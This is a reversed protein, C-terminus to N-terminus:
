KSTNKKDGMENLQIDIKDLLKQRIDTWRNIKEQIPEKDETEKMANQLDKIKQDIEALREKRKEISEAEDAKDFIISEPSGSEEVSEPISIREKKPIFIAEGVQRQNMFGPSVIEIKAAHLEDLIMANLKSETSLITKVDQLLGFVKYVVSFDGLETIRVMPDTLGAKLAAEKLAASIKSRNVDYGLSVTGCLFTGSSRTVKVANSVLQLNPLTILDRNQTQIETHFLGRETVRGFAGSIEIFDGPKFNNIMRLMIGALANGIFTASSLALVASIVIGILGSIQGRLSDSMPIAMIVAIVGVLGIMFLVISRILSADSKGKAQRDLIIRVGYFIGLFIIITFFTPSWNNIFDLIFDM